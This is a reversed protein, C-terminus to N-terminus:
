PGHIVKPCYEGIIDKLEVGLGGRVASNAQLIRHQEDVLLVYCPFAELFDLVEPATVDIVGDPLPLRPQAGEPEVVQQCLTRLKDASQKRTKDEMDDMRGTFLDDRDAERM